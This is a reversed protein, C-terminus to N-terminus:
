IVQAFMEKTRMNVLVFSAGTSNPPVSPVEIDNNIQQVHCKLLQIGDITKNFFCIQLICKDVFYEPRRIVFRYNTKDKKSIPNPIIGGMQEAMENQQEIQKSTRETELGWAFMIPYLRHYYEYTKDKNHIYNETIDTAMLFGGFSEYFNRTKVVIPYIYPGNVHGYCIMSPFTIKKAGCSLTTWYRRLSNFTSNLFTFDHAMPVCDRICNSPCPGFLYDNQYEDPSNSPICPSTDICNWGPKSYEGKLDPRKIYVESLLHFNWQSDGFNVVTRLDFEPELSEGKSVQVQETEEIGEKPNLNEYVIGPEFYNLGLSEVSVSEPEREGKTVSLLRDIGGDRGRDIRANEVFITRSPIGLYRFMTTLIEAFIWCQGYKVPKKGQAIYTSFIHYSCKWFSPHIGDKMQSSDWSGHILGYDCNKENSKSALHRVVIHPIRKEPPLEMVFEMVTSAIDASKLDYTWRNWYGAMGNTYEYIEGTTWDNSYSVHCNENGNGFVVDIVYSCEQNLSYHYRGVSCPFSTEIWNKLFPYAEILNSQTDSNTIKIHRVFRYKGDSSISPPYTKRIFTTDGLRVFEPTITDPIWTNELGIYLTKM